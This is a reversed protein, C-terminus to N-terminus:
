SNIRSCAPIMGEVNQTPYKSAASLGNQSNATTTVSRETKIATTVGTRLERIGFKTGSLWTALATAISLPTRFRERMTPGAIAPVKSATISTASTNQILAHLMTATNSERNTTLGFDLLSATELLM